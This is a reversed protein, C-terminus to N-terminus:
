HASPVFSARSCSRGPAAGRGSGGRGRRAAGERGPPCPGPGPVPSGGAGVRGHPHCLRRSSGRTWRQLMAAGPFGRARVAGAPGERAGRAPSPPSPVFGAWHRGPPQPSLGPPTTTVLCSHLLCFQQRVPKEPPFHLSLLLFPIPLIIAIIYVIILVLLSLPSRPSKWPQPCCLPDSGERVGSPLPIPCGMSVGGWTGLRQGPTGELEEPRARAKPSSGGRGEARRAGRLNSIFNTAWTRSNLAIFICFLCEGGGYCGGGSPHEGLCVCGKEWSEGPERRLWAAGLPENRALGWPDAAERPASPPSPPGKPTSPPDGCGGSHCSRLRAPASRM